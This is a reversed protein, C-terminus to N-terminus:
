AISQLKRRDPHIREDEVKEEDQRPLVKGEKKAVEEDTLPRYYIVPKTKTKLFLEDLPLMKLPFDLNPREYEVPPPDVRSPKGSRGLISFASATASTPTSASVPGASPPQSRNNSARETEVAPRGRPMGLSQEYDAISEEAKTKSVFEVQVQRGTEPPFVQNHTAELAAQAQEPSSYFVYCHTKIKDIWFRNVEGFNSLYQKAIKDNFPRILNKIHITDTTDMSAFSGKKLVTLTWDLGRLNFSLCVQMAPKVGVKVEVVPETGSTAIKPYAQGSSREASPAVSEADALKSKKLPAKAGGEPEERVRKTSSNANFDDTAEVNKMEIDVIQDKAAQGAGAHEPSNETGAAGPLVSPTDEEIGTKSASMETEPIPKPQSEEVVAVVPPLAEIDMPIAASSSNTNDGDDTGAQEKAVPSETTAQDAPKKTEGLDFGNTQKGDTQEGTITSQVDETVGVEDTEDGGAEDSETLASAGRAPTTRTSRLSSRTSKVSAPTKAARSSTKRMPSSSLEEAPQVNDKEKDIGGNEDQLTLSPGDEAIAQELRQILDKKVRLSKSDIGRKTLEAKLETVKWTNLDEAMTQLTTTTTPHHIYSKHALTQGLNQIESQNEGEIEINDARFYVTGEDFAVVTVEDDASICVGRLDIICKRIKEQYFDGRSFIPSIPKSPSISTSYHNKLNWFGSTPHFLGAVPLFEMSSTEPLSQAIEQAVLIIESNAELEIREQGGDGLVLLASPEVSKLAGFDSSATRSIVLKRPNMDRCLSELEPITLRIELDVDIDGGDGFIGGLSRPSSQRLNFIPRNIAIARQLFSQVQRSSFSTSCCFLVSQGTFSSLNPLEDLLLLSKEELLRTHEWPLKTQQVIEQRKPSLWEGLINSLHFSEGSLPSSLCLFPRVSAALLDEILSFILGYPPTIVVPSEGRLVAQHILNRASDMKQKVSSANKSVINNCIVLDADALSSTDMPTSHCQSQFSSTSLYTIKESGIDSYSLGTAIISSLEPSSKVFEKLVVRGYDVTPETAFIRGNFKTYETIYPLAMMNHYNSLLVIQICSWDVANFNPLSYLSKPKESAQAITCDLLIGIGDQLILNWCPSDEDPGISALDLFTSM